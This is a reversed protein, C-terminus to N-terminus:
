GTWTLGTSAIHGDAAMSANWDLNACIRTAALHSKFLTSALYWTGRHIFLAGNQKPGLYINGIGANSDTVMYVLRWYEWGFSM